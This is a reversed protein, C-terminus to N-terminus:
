PRTAIIGVEALVFRRGFAYKVISVDTTAHGNPTLSLGRCAPEAHGTQGRYGVDDPWM